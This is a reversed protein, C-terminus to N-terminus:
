IDLAVAGSRTATAEPTSAPRARGQSYSRVAALKEPASRAMPVAAAAAGLLDATSLPRAGDDFASYLSDRVLTALERGSFDVTSAAVQAADITEPDRGYERMAARIIEARERTTPLDVFFCVDFRGMLEPPLKSVDNATAYVFVGQMGEQMETLLVGLADASVGGDAGGSIAGALAKEIEDIWLIGGVTKALKIVRRISAESDGVFKSRAAGLDFRLLPMQWCTALAKAILSKGCGSVGYCFMGKPAPLGYARAAAGFAARRKMSWAKVENNGGVADLGLPLPDFWQLAAERSLQRKKEGAVAAPDVTRSLIISRSFTAQVQESSLGVAAGIAADRTGNPAATARLDEPLAAIASDLLGAVEARDPLPVDVLVAHGQLEPPIEGSPTLVVVARAQDLPAQPLTRCLSRLARTVFPDRLWPALDRLIWLRRETSDRIAALVAGADTLSADIVRGALDTLGNACDWAVPVLKAAIGGEAVIREGRAEEFTLCWLLPNRARLLASVDASCKAGATLPAASM